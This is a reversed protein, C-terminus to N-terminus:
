KEAYFYISFDGLTIPLTPEESGDAYIVKIAAIVSPIDGYFGNTTKPTGMRSAYWGHGAGIEFVNSESLMVTVDYTQYQLRHAYETWGPMMLLDGVRKGNIRAEYVGLASIQLIAQKIEKSIVFEKKFKPCILKWDAEGSIFKAEKIFDNM